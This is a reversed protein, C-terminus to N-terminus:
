LRVHGIQDDHREQAQEPHDRCADQESASAHHEEAQQRQSRARRRRSRALMVVGPSSARTAAPCPRPPSRVGALTRGSLPRVADGGREGHLQLGVADDGRDPRRRAREPLTPVMLVRSAASVPMSISSHHMTPLGFDVSGAVAVGRALPPSHRPSRCNADRMAWCAAGRTAVSLALRRSEHRAAGPWTAAPLDASSCGGTGAAAGFPPAVLGARRRRCWRWLRPLGLHHHLVARRRVAITLRPPM